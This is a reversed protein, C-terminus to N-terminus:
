TRVLLPCCTCVHNSFPLNSYTGGDFDTFRATLSGASSRVDFSAEDDDQVYAAFINERLSNKSISMSDNRGFSFDMNADNKGGNSVDDNAEGDLYDNDDYEQLQQKIAAATSIGKTPSSNRNHGRSDPSSGASSSDDGHGRHYHGPGHSKDGVCASTLASRACPHIVNWFCFHALLGYLRVCVKSSLIVCILDYYRRDQQVRPVYDVISGCFTFLANYVLEDSFALPRLLKRFSKAKIENVGVSDILSATVNELTTITAWSMRRGGSAGSVGAKTKVDNGLADWIRKTRTKM